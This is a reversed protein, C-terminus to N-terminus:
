SCDVNGSGAKRVRCQAGGRLRVDGSGAINVAATRTASGSINGSGAISVAATEASLSGMDIDGSGAITYNAEGARGGRARIDGSGSIAMKLRAVEVTGLRLDGSGAVSGDFSDGAIRDVEIEGSGAIAAAALRPVTVALRVPEVRNNSWIRGREKRPRIKLTAGDVEVEMRQLAADSGSARVSPAAGTRVQVTYPGSVQIRTFQGVQYSREVAPGSASAQSRAESCGGVVMAVAAMGALMAKGMM